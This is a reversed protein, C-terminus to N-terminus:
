LQPVCCHSSHLNLQYMTSATVSLPAFYTLANVTTSNIYKIINMGDNFNAILDLDGFTFAMKRDDNILIRTINDWRM